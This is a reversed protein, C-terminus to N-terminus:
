QQEKLLPHQIIFCHSFRRLVLTHTFDSYEATSQPHPTVLQAELEQHPLFNPLLILKARIVLSCATVEAAPVQFATPPGMRGAQSPSIGPGMLGPSGPLSPGSRVALLPGLPDACISISQGAYEPLPVTVALEQQKETSCSAAKHDLPGLESQGAAAASRSDLAGGGGSSHM